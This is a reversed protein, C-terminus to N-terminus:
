YHYPECRIIKFARYIQEALVLLAIDHQLTLKSLSIFSCDISDFCGRDFGFAGGIVFTINKGTSLVDSILNSFGKSTLQKGTEDLIVKFDYLCNKELYSVLRRTEDQKVKNIDDVRLSSKKLSIISIQNYKKIRELYYMLPTEIIKSPKGITIIKIKM